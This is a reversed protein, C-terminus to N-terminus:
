QQKGREILTYNEESSTGANACANQKELAPSKGKRLFQSSIMLLDQQFTM